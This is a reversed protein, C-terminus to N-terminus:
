IIDNSYIDILERHLKVNHVRIYDVHHEIALTNLALTFIDKVENSKDQTNLLSKRSIGTMVPYGFSYLEEIRNIIRFNDERTKDFGIGPDIIISQIGAAKALNIQANLDLFIDDMINNYVINESMNIKNGSSHQLILGANNNAIVEAMKNDYKLGSVDNIISAGNKLCESAVEASRTDISIPINYQKSGAYELVPLIKEIQEEASVPSAGPKTSEAGIDIIDAGDNVLKTFHECAKETSNYKGGDSFSNSTINLIGALKTKNHKDTIKETIQQGLSALSFPQHKLKLAIKNLQAYSGGLIVDSTETRGTIVERHTACDAGVSLATQKLINAQACNLNFIKLNKYLFKDVARHKYSNDFGIHEIEKELDANTISKIIFESSTM